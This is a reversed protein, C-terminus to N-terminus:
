LRRSHLTLHQLTGALASLALLNVLDIDKGTITLDRLEAAAAATLTVESLWEPEHGSLALVLTRLKPPASLHMTVNEQVAVSVNLDRLRQLEKTLMMAADVSISSTSLDLSELQGMGGARPQQTHIIARALRLSTDHDITKSGQSSISRVHQPTHNLADLLAEVNDEKFCLVLGTAQDFV